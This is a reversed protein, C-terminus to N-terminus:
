LNPYLLYTMAGPDWAAIPVVGLVPAIGLLSAADMNTGSLDVPLSVLSLRAPLSFTLGGGVQTTTDPATRDAETNGLLDRARSKFGYTHGLVGTFSASTQATNTLFPMFPGGNDSVSITFDQI